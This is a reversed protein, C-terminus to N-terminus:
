VCDASSSTCRSAGLGARDASSLSASSRISRAAHATTPRFPTPEAAQCATRRAVPDRHEDGGRHEHCAQRHAQRAQAELVIGDVGHRRPVGVRQGGLVQGVAERARGVGAGDEDGDVGALPRGAVRPQLVTDRQAGDGRGSLRGDRVRGHVQEVLEDGLAGCPLHRRQGVRHRAREVDRVFHVHPAHVFQEPEQLAAHGLQLPGDRELRLHAEDVVGVGADRPGAGAVVRLGDAFRVRGREGHGARVRLARHLVARCPRGVVGRARGRHAADDAFVPAAGAKREEEIRALLAEGADAGVQVVGDVGVAGFHGGAVRAAAARELPVDEVVVGDEDVGARGRRRRGMERLGGDLVEQAEAGDGDQEDAGHQEGGEAARARDGRHHQRERHGAEADEAGEAPEAQGDMRHRQEDERDEDAGADVEADV